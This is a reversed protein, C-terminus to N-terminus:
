CGAPSQCATPNQHKGRPLTVEYSSTRCATLGFIAHLRKINCEVEHKCVSDKTYQRTVIQERCARGADARRARGIAGSKACATAIAVGQAAPRCVRVRWVCMWGASERLKRALAMKKGASVRIHGREAVSLHGRRCVQEAVSSRTPCARHRKPWRAVRPGEGPLRPRSLHPYARRFPPPMRSRFAVSETRPTFLAMSRNEANQVSADLHCERQAAPVGDSAYPGNRM